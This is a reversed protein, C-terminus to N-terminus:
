GDVKVPMRGISKQGLVLCPLALDQGITRSLLLQDFHTARNVIALLFSLSLSVSLLVCVWLFVFTIQSM